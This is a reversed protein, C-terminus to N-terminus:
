MAYFMYVCWGGEDPQSYVSVYGASIPETGLTGLLGASFDDGGGPSATSPDIYLSADGAIADSIDTQSSSDDCLLSEATAADGADVADLLEQAVAEADAAGDCCGEDTPTTTDSFDDDLEPITPDPITPRGGPSEGMAEGGGNGDDDDDGGGAAFIVILLVAAVAGLLGLILPTNNRPPPGAAPGIRSPPHVPGTTPPGLPGPPGPPGSPGPPGLPGQATVFPPPPGGPHTTHPPPPGPPPPTPTPRRHHTTAQAEWAAQGPDLRPPAEVTAATAAARELLERAAGSALRREVPRTLLGTIVEALPPGCPAPPPDEFLIARLTATTTPREFPAKGAVAHFLTAGLAWLDTAPGVQGDDFCEPALYAHTGM